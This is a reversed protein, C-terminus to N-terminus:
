QAGTSNVLSQDTIQALERLVSTAYSGSPLSFNLKLDNDNTQWTMNQPIVILARREQKLGFNELGTALAAHQEVVGQELLFAEDTSKNLGKGWLPASLTIDGQEFREAINNDDSDPKFSAKTGALMFVDGELATHHLNKEIRQSVVENFIFSRAASLLMGRLDRNKVKQGAFLENAREINDGDFGFRQAGFYNPVGYKQIAQLREEIAQSLTLGRIILEFNNGKLAGTKIKKNHRTAHLVKLQPSELDAVDPSEKGPLHVSIQQRTIGYRDKKGAYGIERQTVGAWRAILKAAYASNLGDKEIELVLHEGEGSMDYGLHEFVKFDCNSTKIQGQAIPQGHMYQWHPLAM